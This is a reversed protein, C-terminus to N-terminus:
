NALKRWHEGPTENEKQKAWFFGGRSHYTNRKLMYYDKFLQLLRETNKTDPNTKFEGKTINEIASPGAGWIFDQRIGPEKETWSNSTLITEASLALKM